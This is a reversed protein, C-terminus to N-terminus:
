QPVPMARCGRCNLRCAPMSGPMSVRMVIAPVRAAERTEQMSVEDAEHTSRGDCRMRLGRGRGRGRRCCVAGGAPARRRGVARRHRRVARAGAGRLVARGDALGVLGSPSLSAFDSPVSHGGDPTSGSIRAGSARSPPLIGTIGGGPLGPPSGETRGFYPGFVAAGGAKSSLRSRCERYGACERGATWVGAPRM